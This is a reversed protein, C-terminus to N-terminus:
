KTVGTECKGQTTYRGGIRCATIDLHVTFDVQEDQLSASTLVANTFGPVKGLADVYAAVQAKDRGAGALSLTGVVRDKNVTPLSRTANQGTNMMVSVTYIRIGNPAASQVNAVLAPMSMDNTLVTKLQANIARSQSQTSVLEQYKNQDQTLRQADAETASLEARAAATQYATAGFWATLLVLVGALGSLVARRARRARRTQVIEEPLLNAAISVNGLMREPAHGGTAGSAEPETIITSM